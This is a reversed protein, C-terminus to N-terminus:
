DQWKQDTSIFLAAGMTWDIDHKPISFNHYSSPLHYVNDLLIKLYTADFCSENLEQESLTPFQSKFEARHTNCSDPISKILDEPLKSNFFKFNYYYGSAAVFKMNNKMASRIVKSIGLHDKKAQLYLKILKGCRDYNFDTINNNKNYAIFSSRKIHLDEGFLHNYEADHQHEVKHGVHMKESLKCEKLAHKHDYKTINKKTQKLGYGLISKSYVKYKKHDFNIQYVDKNKNNKNNKYSELWEMAVQTSAGGMDLAAITPENNQLTQLKYNVSLWDFIGELEGPITQAVLGTNVHGAQKITNILEQYLIKQKQQNHLRMGATAYFYMPTQNIDINLNKLQNALEKYLPLVHETVQKPKTCYEAVARKDTSKTIAIETLFPIANYAQNPSKQINYAHMRTGTSGMDVIIINRTEYKPITNLQTPKITKGLKDANTLQALDEFVGINNNALLDNTTFTYIVIFPICVSLFLSRYIKQLM